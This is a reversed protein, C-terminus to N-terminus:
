MGALFLVSRGPKKGDGGGGVSVEVVEEQVLWCVEVDIM